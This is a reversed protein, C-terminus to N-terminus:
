DVAARIIRDRLGENIGCNEEPWEVVICTRGKAEFRRFSAFLEHSYQEWSNCLIVEAIKPRPKHVGIYGTSARDCKPFKERHRWIMVPIQPAYHRYRTGPSRKESQADPVYLEMRMEAEIEERSLGGPRLLMVHKEDTVDIVTSEIGFNTSGADIIMDIKGNMDAYVSDAETPSPRGSTNASPAAIPTDAYEILRLAIDNNPMRVAATQLGGRTIAPVIERAPLVMTLPGPWFKFALREALLNMRVLQYATQLRAVHLILPNDAPRGKAEYIRSVADPNLADAGLGYVTETPFAVLGGSRIIRSARILTNINPKWRDVISIITKM